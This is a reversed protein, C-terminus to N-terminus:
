RALAPMVGASTPARRGSGSRRAPANWGTPRRAAPARRGHMGNRWLSAPWTASRSSRAGRARWRAHQDDGFAHKGHIAVERRQRLQRPQRLLALAHSIASSACSRSKPARWAPRRAAGCRCATSPARRRRRSDRRRRLRHDIQDAVAGARQDIGGAQRGRDHGGRDGGEVQDLALGLKSASGSALARAKVRAALRGSACLAITGTTIPSAAPRARRMAAAPPRLSGPPRSGGASRAPLCRAAAATAEAGRWGSASIARSASTTRVRM